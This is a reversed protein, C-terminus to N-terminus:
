AKCTHFLRLTLMSNLQPSTNIYKLCNARISSNERWDTVTVTGLQKNAASEAGFSSIYIDETHKPRLRLLSSIEPCRLQVPYKGKCMLVVLWENNLVVCECPLFHKNFVATAVTLVSLGPIKRLMQKLM